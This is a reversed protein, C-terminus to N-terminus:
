CSSEEDKGSIRTCGNNTRHDFFLAIDGDLDVEGVQLIELRSRRGFRGFVKAPSQEQTMEKFQEVSDLLHVYVRGGLCFTDAVPGGPGDDRYIVIIM